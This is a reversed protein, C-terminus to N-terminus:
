EVDMSNERFSVQMPIRLDPQSINQVPIRVGAEEGFRSQIEAGIPQYKETLFNDPVEFVANDKGQKYLSKNFFNSLFKIKCRSRQLLFPNTQASLFCCFIKKIRWQKVTCKV